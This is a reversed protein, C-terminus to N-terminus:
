GDGELYYNCLDDVYRTEGGDVLGPEVTQVRATNLVLIKRFMLEKKWADSRLIERANMKMIERYLDVRYGGRGVRDVLQLIEDTTNDKLVEITAKEDGQWSLYIYWWLVRFWIRKAKKWFRDPHDGPYRLEVAEPAVMICLFRWIGATSAQRVTMGYKENLLKYLKMGFCLDIKYAKNGTKKRLDEPSTNQDALASSFAKRIDTQLEKFEDPCKDWQNGAVLCDRFEHYLIESDRVSLEIWKM